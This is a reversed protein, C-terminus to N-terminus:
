PMRPCSLSSGLPSKFEVREWVRYDLDYIYIKKEKKKCPIKDDVADGANSPIRSRKSNDNCLVSIRKNIQLYVDNRQREDVSIVAANM